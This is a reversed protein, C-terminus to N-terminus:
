DLHADFFALTREMALKSAAADFNARRDSSFGHDADYLHIAVEPHKEALFEIKDEPTSADKSGFHLMTPCKPALEVFNLIATGYYAVACDLRPVKAAALWAIAGGYCYGVIGVPEQGTGRRLHAVSATVDQMPAEWGIEERLARGKAVGDADYPLDAQPLVRDYLQPAVVEYGQAAYREGLDRIHANVGFIEMVLVIGGRPTGAPMVHWAQFKHGDAAELTIWEGSM